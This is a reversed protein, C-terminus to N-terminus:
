LWTNPGKITQKQRTPPLSIFHRFDVYFLILRQVIGQLTEFAATCLGANQSVKPLLLIVLAGAHFATLFGFGCALIFVLAIILVM